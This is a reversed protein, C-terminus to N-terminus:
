AFADIVAQALARRRLAIASVHGDELWRPHVGWHRAIADVDRPPVIADGRTGVLKARSPDHPAPLALVSLGEMVARLRRPAGAGLVDWRLDRGLPGELFVSAPSASPAMPVVRVPWPALSATMAAMQGGMSYGVVGVDAAVHARGWALLGRAEAVTARGMSVFDSVFRLRPGRQGIRRRTGYFANELLMVAVGHEVAPAVLRRRAEFAEDGWAALAVAFARPEGVRPTLL